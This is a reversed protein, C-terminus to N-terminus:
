RSDCFDNETVLLMGTLQGVVAFLARLGGPAVEMWLAWSSGLLQETPEAFAGGGEGATHFRAPICSLFAGRRLQLHKRGEEGPM